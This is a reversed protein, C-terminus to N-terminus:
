HSRRAPALAFRWMGRGARAQVGAITGTGGAELAALLRDVGTTRWDSPFGHSERVQTIARLALRRRIEPPLGAPDLAIAGESAEARMDWFLDACARLARDAEAAHAASDAIGAVDLWRNAAFLARFRTRDHRDDANSPDDVFPTGAAEAVARLEARRWGLLPRLVPMGDIEGSERIAGLGSVGSGRAARMLFTEAQDDAHHATLLARAGTEAFWRALLRYRAERAQAQLSAGAIPTDPALTAHPIGLGACWGAVMAAEDASDARLRHNVTAVSVRGPLAAHALALMAVSDPGGSVALAFRDDKAVPAGLAAALGALFRDVPAPTLGAM